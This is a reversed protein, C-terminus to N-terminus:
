EAGKKTAKRGRKPKEDPETQDPEKPMAKLEAEKLEKYAILEAINADVEEIEKELAEKESLGEYAKKNEEDDYIIPKLLVNEFTRILRHIQEDIRQWSVGANSCLMRLPMFMVELVEHAAILKIDFSDLDNGEGSEDIMDKEFCVWFVRNSVDGYACGGATGSDDVNDHIIKINADKIGFFDVWELVEDEFVEFQEETTEFYKRAM